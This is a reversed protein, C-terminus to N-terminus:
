RGFEGTINREYNEYEYEEKGKAYSRQICRGAPIPHRVNIPVSPLHFALKLFSINTRKNVLDM